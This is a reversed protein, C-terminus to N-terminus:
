RKKQIGGLQMETAVRKIESVIQRVESPTLRQRSESDIIREEQQQLIPYWEGPHPLDNVKRPILHLHFHSITQGAEKGEQITWNFGNVGFTKMLIRICERSFIVMECTEQDSLELLSVVHWKPVILSHGPLIPAINYLAHFNESQAFVRDSSNCFPCNPLLVSNM